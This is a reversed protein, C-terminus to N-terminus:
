RSPIRRVQTPRQLLQIKKPVETGSWAIASIPPFAVKQEVQFALVRGAVEKILNEAFLPM